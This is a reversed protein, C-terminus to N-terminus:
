RNASMSPIEDERFARMKSVLHALLRNAAMPLQRGLRTIMHTEAAAFVPHDIALAALEGAHLEQAVAFVPLFTIGLNACVFHKLVSLSNTTLTPTFRIKETFEALQVIQRTGYAIHTLAVPYGLLEKLMLPRTLRALPHDPRVIACMPQRSTARSRIRPDAPPNYVLGIHAVDEAVLRMVDNTGALDITITLKPYRSCFEQMPESMLDGVFGEVVALNIHGRQLGRIEQLKTILDEQHARQQRYYDILLQGAETPHVGRSHRELLPTALEAELQAIQRSIVSPNVDLKDAAARLTGSRVAEFLYRVRREDIRDGM